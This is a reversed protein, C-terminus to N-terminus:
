KQKALLYAACFFMWDKLSTFKKPLSGKDVLRNMARRPLHDLVEYWSLWSQQLPTLVEPNMISQLDKKSLSFAVELILTAKTPINFVDPTEQLEVHERTTQVRRGDDFEVEYQTPNAPSSLDIGVLTGNEVRDDMIYRVPGSISLTPIPLPNSDHNALSFEEEEVYVDTEYAAPSSECYDLNQDSLKNEVTNSISRDTRFAAHFVLHNDSTTSKKALSYFVEMTSDAGSKVRLEPFKSKGHIITKSLKGFNWTFLSQHCRSLIWTDWDDKLQDALGVVSLFKM